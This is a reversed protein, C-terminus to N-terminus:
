RAIKEEVSEMRFSNDCTEESHYHMCSEGRKCYGGQNYRCIKATAQVVKDLDVQEQNRTKTQIFNDIRGERTIEM